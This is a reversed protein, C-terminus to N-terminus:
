KALEEAFEIFDPKDIQMMGCRVQECLIKYKGMQSLIDYMTQRTFHAGPWFEVNLKNLLDLGTFKTIFSPDKAVFASLWQMFQLNSLNPPCDQLTPMNFDPLQVPADWKGQLGTLPTNEFYDSWIKATRDWNFYKEAVQRAKKSKNEKYKKDLNFFKYFADAAAKNDPDARDAMLNFDRPMAAPELPIGGTKEVVDAMASYNTAAVTVGCASAELAGMGSGECNAYQVYLDMANYAIALQEESFGFATNPTQLTINGTWESQSRIGSYKRAAINRTGTCIYSFFVRNTVGFENLLDTLEWGFDPYSTHLYLYTKKGIETHGYKDLYIRFAKFLEPFLKRIQNRSTFGIIYSDEPLGLLKKAEIKNGPRFVDLDVGPYTSGIYNLGNVSRLYDACWDSYSFIGDCDRAYENWQPRQPISDVTPMWALNYFKRYPSATLYPLDNYPDRISFVFDPKFDLCTREFRWAGFNNNPNANFEAAQLHNSSVAAPYFKWGNVHAYKYQEEIACAGALEALELRDNQALRKSLERGYKGFGSLAGSCEASHLIKIKKM